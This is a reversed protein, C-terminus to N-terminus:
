TKFVSVQLFTVLKHSTVLFTADAISVRCHDFISASAPVKQLPSTWPWNAFFYSVHVFAWKKFISSCLVWIRIQAFLEVIHHMYKFRLMHIQLISIVLEFHDLGLYQLLLLHRRDSLKRGPYRM